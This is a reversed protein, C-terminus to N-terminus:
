ARVAFRHLYLADPPRDPWFVPDEPFLSMTGVAEGDVRILYLGGSVRAEVLRARGWGDPDQFDGPRWSDLGRARAWAIADELIEAAAPVDAATALRVPIREPPANGRSGSM